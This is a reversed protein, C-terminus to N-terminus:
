RFFHGVIPLISSLLSPEDLTEWPWAAFSHPLHASCQLDFSLSLVNTLLFAREPLLPESVFPLVLQNVPQFLHVVVAPIEKGRYLDPTPSVAVSRSLLLSHPRDLDWVTAVVGASATLELNGTTFGILAVCNGARWEFNTHARSSLGLFVDKVRKSGAFSAKSSTPNSMSSPTAWGSALPKRVSITCFWLKLGTQRLFPCIRSWSYGAIWSVVVGSSATSFWTFAIPGCPGIVILGVKGSESSWSRAIEGSTSVFKWSSDLVSDAWSRLRSASYM